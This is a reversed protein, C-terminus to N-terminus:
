IVAIVTDVPIRKLSYALREAQWIGKKTLDVDQFGSFKRQVNGDSEGHRILLLKITM